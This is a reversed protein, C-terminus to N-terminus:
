RRPCGKGGALLLAIGLNQWRVPLPRYQDLSLALGIGRIAQRRLLPAELLMKRQASDIQVLGGPGGAMLHRGPDLAYHLHVLGPMATCQIGLHGANQRNEQLIGGPDHLRKKQCSLLVDAEHAQMLGHGLLPDHLDAKLKHAGDILLRRELGRHNFFKTDPGDIIQINQLDLLLMNQHPHAALRSCVDALQAEVHAQSQAAPRIHLLQAERSRPGEPLVLGQDRQVVQCIGHGGPLLLAVFRSEAATDLRHLHRQSMQRPQDYGVIGHIRDAM